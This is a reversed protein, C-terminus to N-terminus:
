PPCVKACIGCSTCRVDKEGNPQEDYILMPLVRFREYTSGVPMPQEPYMVTCVGKEDYVTRSGEFSTGKGGMRKFDEIYTNVFTKLTYLLGKVVSAGYLKM